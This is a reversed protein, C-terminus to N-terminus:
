YFCYGSCWPNRGKCHCGGWCRGIWDCFEGVCPPSTSKKQPQNAFCGNVSLFLNQVCLLFVIAYVLHSQMGFRGM